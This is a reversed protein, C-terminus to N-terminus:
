VKLRGDKVSKKKKSIKEALYKLKKRVLEARWMASFGLEILSDAM